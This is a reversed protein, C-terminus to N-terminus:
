CNPERKMFWVPFGIFDSNWEHYIEFGFKHYLPLNKPNSTELVVSLKKRDAHQALDKLLGSGIGHGQKEPTVGLFWLYIYDRKPHFKKIYSERKLVKFLREPGIVKFIFQIDALLRSFTYRSKKPYDYLIAGSCDPSLVAGNQNNCINLAYSMLRSLREVRKKDNKVAWKASKNDDFSQTLIDIIKKKDTIRNIM